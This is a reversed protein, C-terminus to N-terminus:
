ELPNNSELSESEIERYIIPYNARYIHYGAPILVMLTALCIQFYLMPKQKEYELSGDGNTEVTHTLPVRIYGGQPHYITSYTTNTIKKSEASKKLHMMTPIVVVLLVIGALILVVRILPPIYDTGSAVMKKSM